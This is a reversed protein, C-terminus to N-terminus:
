PASLSHLALSQFPECVSSRHQQPNEKKGRQYPNQGLPNTERQAYGYERSDGYGHADGDEPVAEVVNVSDDVAGEDVARERRQQCRAVEAADHHKLSDAAQYVLNGKACEGTLLALEGGYGGGQHDGRQECRQPTAELREYVTAEVATLVVSTFGELGERGLQAVFRVQIREAGVQNVHDPLRHLRGV